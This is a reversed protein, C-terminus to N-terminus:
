NQRKKMESERKKKKTYMTSVSKFCKERINPFEEKMYTFKSLTLSLNGPSQVKGM